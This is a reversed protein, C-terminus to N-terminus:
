LSRFTSLGITTLAGGDLQKLRMKRVVDKEDGQVGGPYYKIETRGETKVMLDAAGKELIVMWPSGVPALTAVRREDARANAGLALLTAILTLTQLRKM